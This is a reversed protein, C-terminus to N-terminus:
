NKLEKIIKIIYNAKQMVRKCSIDSFGKPNVQLWNKIYGISYETNYKTSITNMILYATMEAELEKIARLEDKNKALKKIAQLEKDNHLLIHALEHFLTHVNESNGNDFFGNIAIQNKNPLAYGGANGNSGLSADFDILKIKLKDLLKKYDFGSADVTQINDLKDCTTSLMSFALPKFIFHNTINKTTENGEDDIVKVRYGGCPYWGLLAREGKKIKYGKQKWFEFKAVPAIKGFRSLQQMGFLLSNLPSYSYFLGFNKNLLGKNEPALAFNILVKYDLTKSTDLSKALKVSTQNELVTANTM